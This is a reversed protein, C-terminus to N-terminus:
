NLWAVIFQSRPNKLSLIPADKKRKFDRNTKINKARVETKLFIILWGIAILASNFRGGKLIAELVAILHM